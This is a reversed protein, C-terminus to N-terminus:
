NESPANHQTSEGGDLRTCYSLYTPYLQTLSSEISCKTMIKPSIILYPTEESFAGARDARRFSFPWPLMVDSSCKDLVCQASM